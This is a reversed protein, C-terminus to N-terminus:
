SEDGWKTQCSHMRCKNFEIHTETELKAIRETNDSIKERIDILYKVEVGIGAIVSILLGWFEINDLM